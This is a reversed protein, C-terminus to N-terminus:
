NCMGGRLAVAELFWRLGRRDRCPESTECALYSYNPKLDHIEAVPALSEDLLYRYAVGAHPFTARSLHACLQTITKFSRKVLVLTGRHYPDGNKFVWVYLPAEARPLPAVQERPRPLALDRHLAVRYM